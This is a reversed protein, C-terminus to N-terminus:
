KGTKGFAPCHLTEAKGDQLDIVSFCGSDSGLVVLDRKEGSLRLTALSRLVSRTELRTILKLWIRTEEEEEDDDNESAPSSEIIRHVELTGGARLVVIEQQATATFEGVASTIIAGAHKLTLDLLNLDASARSETNQTTM